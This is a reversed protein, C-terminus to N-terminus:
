EDRRRDTEDTALMTALIEGVSALGDVPAKEGTRVREVVGSIRGGDDRHLRVIFVVRQPSKPEETM